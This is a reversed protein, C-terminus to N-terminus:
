IVDSFGKNQLRNTNAATLTTTFAGDIIVSDHTFAGTNLTAGCAVRSSTVKGGADVNLTGASQVETSNAANQVPDALSVLSGATLVCFQMVTNDPAYGGSGSLYLQSADTIQSRYVTDASTNITRAQEIRGGSVVCDQVVLDRTTGATNYILGDSVLCSTINVGAAAAQTITGLQVDSNQISLSNSGVAGVGQALTVNRMTSVNIHVPATTANNRGLSVSLLISDEIFVAGGAGNFELDGFERFDSAVISIGTLSSSNRFLNVSNRFQSNSIAIGPANTAGDFEYSCSGEFSNSQLILNGTASASTEYSFTGGGYFDCEDILIFQVAGSPTIDVEFGGRIINGTISAGSPLNADNSVFSGGNLTNGAFKTGGGGVLATLDVTVNSLGDSFIQNNRIATGAAVALDWGVLSVDAQRSIQNGTVISFGWPFQTELLTGGADYVVNGLNDHLDLIRNADVDYLGFWGSNDFTTNVQAAMGLESASVPWLLITTDSTSGSVGITPGDSILVPCGVVLGASNRLSIADANTMLPEYACGAGSSIVYPNGASGTGTVTAGTGAVVRCSCTTSSGCGCRPAM